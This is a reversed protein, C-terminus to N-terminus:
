HQIIVKTGVPAMEYVEDMDERKLSVCGNTWNQYADVAVEDHPWTGHIAIGDGIKASRPILGEAKREKFKAVDAPSPYDLDMIKDWKEHPRKSVIHYIGEPTKRDGQMMKDDLSKSGFVAPYTAYWGDKDYVQLEYSSKVVLIYVEGELSRHFWRKHATRDHTDRFSFLSILLSGQLILKRTTM